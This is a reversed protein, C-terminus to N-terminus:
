QAELRGGDGVILVRLILMNDIGESVQATFVCLDRGLVTFDVKLTLKRGNGSDELGEM